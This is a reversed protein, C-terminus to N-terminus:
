DRVRKAIPALFAPGWPINADPTNFGVSVSVFDAGIEKFQKILEISENLTQEDNGDYEIVGFRITLPLNEPWVARVANLTELL